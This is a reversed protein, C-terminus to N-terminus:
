KILEILNQVANMNYQGLWNNDPDHYITLIKKGSESYPPQLNPTGMRIALYVLTLQHQKAFEMAMQHKEEDLSITFRTSYPYVYLLVNTHNSYNINKTIPKYIKRMFPEVHPNINHTDSNFIAITLKEKQLSISSITNTASVEYRRTYGSATKLNSIQRKLIVLDNTDDAFIKIFYEVM